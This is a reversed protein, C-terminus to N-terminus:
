YKALEQKLIKTAERVKEPPAVTLLDCLERFQGNNEYLEAFGEKTQAYEQLAPHAKEIYGM